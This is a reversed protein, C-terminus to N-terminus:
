CDTTNGPEQKGYYLIIDKVEWKIIHNTQHASIDELERWFATTYLCIITDEKDKCFHCHNLTMSTYLETYMFIYLFILIVCSQCSPPWSM